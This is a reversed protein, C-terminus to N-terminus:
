KEGYIVIASYEPAVKGDPFKQHLSEFVEKRIKEKMAEDAKSLAAVVPAAVETQLHWYMEATGAELTGNIEKEKINKLGAKTFLEAIFGKQACRFM